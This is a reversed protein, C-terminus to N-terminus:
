LGVGWGYVKFYTAMESGGLLSVVHLFAAGEKPARSWGETGSCVEEVVMQTSKAEWRGDLRLPVSPCRPADTEGEWDISGGDGTLRRPSPDQDVWVLAQGSTLQWSRRYLLAKTGVPSPVEFVLNSGTANATYGPRAGSRYPGGDSEDYMFPFSSTSSSVVSAKLRSRTPLIQSAVCDWDRSSGLQWRPPPLSSLPASLPLSPPTHLPFGHKAQPGLELWSPGSWGSSKAAPVVLPTYPAALSIHFLLERIVLSGLLNHGRNNPHIGQDGYLDPLQEVDPWTFLQLAFDVVPVHYYEAVLAHDYGVSTLFRNHREGTRVDGEYSAVEVVIVPVGWELARRFIREFNATRSISLRGEEDGGEAGVPLIGDNYAFEVLLLDIPPREDIRPDYEFLSALCVSTLGSESAPIAVNVLTHQATENEHPQFNRNLWNIVHQGYADKPASISGGAVGIRLAEGRRLPLAVKRQLLQLNRPSPSDRLASLTTIRLAAPTHISLSVLSVAVLVALFVAIRFTPRSPPIPGDLPTFGAYRSTFFGM